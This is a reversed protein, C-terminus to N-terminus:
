LKILKSSRASATPSTTRIRKDPTVQPPVVDASSVENPPENVVGLDPAPDAETPNNSVSGGSGLNPPTTTAVALGQMSDLGQINDAEAGSESRWPGFYALAAASLVAAFILAAVGHRTALAVAFQRVANSGQAEDPMEELWPLSGDRFEVM